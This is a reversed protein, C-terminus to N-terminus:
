WLWHSTVTFLFTWPSLPASSFFGWFPRVCSKCPVIKKKLKDGKSNNLFCDDPFDNLNSRYSCIMIFKFDPSYILLLVIGLSFDMLPSVSNLWPSPWPRMFLNIRVRSSPVYFPFLKRHFFAFTWLDCARLPFDYLTWPPNVRPALHAM